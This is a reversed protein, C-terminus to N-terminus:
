DQDWGKNEVVSMAPRLVSARHTMRWGEKVKGDVVLVLWPM